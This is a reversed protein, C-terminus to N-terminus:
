NGTEYVEHILYGNDVSSHSKDHSFSKPSKMTLHHFSRDNKCAGFLAHFHFLFIFYSLIFHSFMFANFAPLKMAGALRHDFKRNNEKNVKVTFHEFMHFLRNYKIEIFSLSKKMMIAREATCEPLFGDEIQFYTNQSHM